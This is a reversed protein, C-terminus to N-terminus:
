VQFLDPALGGLQVPRVDARLREVLFAEVRQTALQWKASLPALRHCQRQRRQDERVAHCRRTAGRHSRKLDLASARSFLCAGVAGPREYHPRHVTYATRSCTASSASPRLQSLRARRPQRVVGRLRGAPSGSGSWSGSAMVAPLEACSAPLVACPSSPSACGSRGVAPLEVCSSAPLGARAAPLGARAASPSAAVSPPAPLEAVAAAAPLVASAAPPGACPSMRQFWSSPSSRELSGAPSPCGHLAHSGVVAVVVGLM